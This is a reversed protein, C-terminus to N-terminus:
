HFQGSSTRLMIVPRPRRPNARVVQWIEGEQHTLGTGNVTFPRKLRVRQGARAGCDYYYNHRPMFTTAEDSHTAPMNRGSRGPGDSLRGPFHSTLKSLRM